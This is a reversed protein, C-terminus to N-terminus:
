SNAAGCMCDTCSLATRYLMRTGELMRRSLRTGEEELLRGVRKQSKVERELFIFEESNWKVVECVLVYLVRYERVVVVM